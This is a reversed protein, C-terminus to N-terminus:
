RNEQRQTGENTQDATTGVSSSAPVDQWPCAEVRQWSDRVDDETLGASLARHARGALRVAAAEAADALEQDDVDVDSPERIGLVWRLLTNTDGAETINM